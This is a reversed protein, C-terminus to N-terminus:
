SCALVTLESHTAFGCRAWFELAGENSARVMIVVHKAREKERLFAVARDVLARGVARRRHAPHVALHHIYGYRGDSGCLLAGVVVDGEDAVLARSSERKLFRALAERDDEPEILIKSKRWLDHVADCDEIKMERIM